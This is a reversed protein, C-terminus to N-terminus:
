RVQSNYCILWSMVVGFSITCCISLVEENNDGPESHPETVSCAIGRKGRSEFGYRWKSAFDTVIQFRLEM